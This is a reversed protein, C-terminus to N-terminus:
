PSRAPPNQGAQLGNLLAELTTELQTHFDVSLVTFEPRDLVVQVIPAPDSLQGFGIVLANIRQLILVGETPTVFQLHRELLTSTRTAKELLFGKFELAAQFGINRELISAQITVLRILTERGFFSNAFLKAIQSTSQKKPSELATNVAAFWEDLEEILLALLLEERTKFYLYVTGKVLGASEAVQQMTFGSLDVRRWLQRAARIVQERRLQKDNATRARRKSVM